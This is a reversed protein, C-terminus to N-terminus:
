GFEFKGSAIKKDGQYVTFEPPHSRDQNDLQYVGGAGLVQYNLLLNKGQRSISVSNTLPGGAVLVAPRKDNVTIRGAEFQTARELHAEVGGKKLSFKAQGYSGVPVKVVSGPKDIVVLYPGGELTLRQIFEGTIKLEGLSSEQETFQVRAKAADGQGENSFQVQYAHNGVFLKQSYPVTELSGGYLNFPQNREAWLRLLLHGSELSSRQDPPNGVLGVQWEEGQLTVKGQWFSRMAATVNPQGYDYFTLDALTPRNGLPTPFPLQVKAFTQVSDPLGAQCAYVGSPDDTLDQNRNL